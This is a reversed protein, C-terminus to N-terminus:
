CTARGRSRSRSTSRVSSRHARRRRPRSPSESRPCSKAEIFKGFATADGQHLKTNQLHEAAEYPSFINYAPALALMLFPNLNVDSSEADILARVKKLRRELLQDTEEVIEDFRQEPMEDLLVTRALGDPETM